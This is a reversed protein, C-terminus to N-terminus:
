TAQRAPVDPQSDIGPSRSLNVFVPEPDSLSFAFRLWVGRTLRRKEVLHAVDIILKYALKWYSIQKEEYHNRFM